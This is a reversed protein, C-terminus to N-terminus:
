YIHRELYHIANKLTTINEKSFGLVKNCSQCLLGRIIKNEHNHDVVLKSKNKCIACLHNQDKKMKRYDKLSIGYERQLESDKAKNRNKVVWAKGRNDHCKKCESMQSDSYSYKRAYFNEKKFSKKCTVCKKSKIKQEKLVHSKIFCGRSCLKSEPKEYFPNFKKGCFKCKNTVSVHRGVRKGTESNYSARNNRFYLCTKSCYKRVNKRSPSIKFKRNCVKCKISIM